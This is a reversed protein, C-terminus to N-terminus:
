LDVRQACSMKCVNLKRGTDLPFISDLFLNCFLFISLINEMAQPALFPSLNFEVQFLWLTKYVTIIFVFLLRHLVILRKRWDSEKFKVRRM